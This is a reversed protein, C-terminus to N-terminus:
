ETVNVAVIEGLLAVPVTWNLSELVISPVPVIDDPWAVNVVDDNDIPDCAMIAFYRPSVFLEGLVPVNVCVTFWAARAVVM